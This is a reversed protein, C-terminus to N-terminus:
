DMQVRLRGLRSIILSGRANGKELRLTANSAGISHGNPVFTFTRRPGLYRLNWSAPGGRAWRLTTDSGSVTRLTMENSDVSLLAIRGELVAALRAEDHAARLQALGFRLAARDTASILSPAVLSALIAVLLLTVAMEILTHGSRM